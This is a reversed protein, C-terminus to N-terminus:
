LWAEVKEKIQKRTYPKALHADMGAERTHRIDDDFANATLAIIPTRPLGLQSERERWLRTATYGDVKPMHCDMLVLDVNRGHAAELAQEGDTAEIVEMGLAELHTRAILRNVADDEVLLVVGALPAAPDLTGTTTDPAQRPAEGVLEPLTVTFRFTSGKGLTSDIEIHGGMAEVIRQSIALGLGTGRRSTPADNQL